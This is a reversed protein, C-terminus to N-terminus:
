LRVAAEWATWLVLPGSAVIGAPAYRSTWVLRAAIALCVLTFVFAVILLSSGVLTFTVDGSSVLEFSAGLVWGVFAVAAWWVSARLILDATM